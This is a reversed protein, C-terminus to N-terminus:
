CRRLTGSVRGASTVTVSLAKDFTLGDRDTVRVTVTYTGPALLGTDALVTPGCHGVLFAASVDASGQDVASVLSFTQSDGADQDTASLDGVLEYSGTDVVTGGDLQIDTPAENVDTITITFTEQLSAGYRDTARITVDWAAVGEFDFSGATRLEGALSVTFLTAPTRCSRRAPTAACQSVIQEYTVGDGDAEAMAVLTGSPQDEALSDNSLRLDALTTPTSEEVDTATIALAKEYTAGAADSVRVRISYASQQEYDLASVTRVEDGQISFRANDADGAGAVLTFSHTDVTDPDTATLTGALAYVLGEPVSAPVLAIDTPAENVDTVAVTFTRSISGGRADAAVTVQGTSTAEHDIPGTTTLQDGSVQFGAGRVLRYTVASRRLGASLTGVVTGGPANEAVSAGSLQLDTPEAVDTVTIRLRDARQQGGDTTVRVRVSLHPDTEHDLPGAVVLKRGRVAFADNDADGGGAVLAFRQGSGAGKASLRGVVDGRTADEPVSTSSLRVPGPRHFAASVPTETGGVLLGGIVVATVATSLLARM